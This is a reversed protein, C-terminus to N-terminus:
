LVFDEAEDPSILEPLADVRIVSPKFTVVPTQFIDGSADYVVLLEFHLEGVKLPAPGNVVVQREISAQQTFTTKVPPVTANLNETGPYGNLRALFVRSGPGNEIEIYGQVLTVTATVLPSGALNAASVDGIKSIHEYRYCIGTLDCPSSHEIPELCFGADDFCVQASAPVSTALFGLSLMAVLPLKNM